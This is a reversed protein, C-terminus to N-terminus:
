AFLADIQEDTIRSITFTKGLADWETGTWGYNMGDENKVDYVDGTEADNPLDAFANVSGKFKYVNTLDSKTVLEPKNQVDSWDVSGVGELTEADVEVAGTEPNVKFNGGLKILGPDSASAMPAESWDVFAKGTADAKLATKVPVPNETTAVKVGGIAEDTAVPLTYNKLGELKEKESTTFDNTSLGKGAEADVKKALEAQVKTNYKSLGEYDLFNNTTNEPM